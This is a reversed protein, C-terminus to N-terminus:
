CLWRRFWKQIQKFFSNGNEKKIRKYNFMIYECCKELFTKKHLVHFMSPSRIQNTRREGFVIKPKKNQYEFAANIVDRLPCNPHTCPKNERLHRRVAEDYDQLCCVCRAPHSAKRIIM